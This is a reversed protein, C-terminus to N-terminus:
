KLLLDVEIPRGNYKKMIDLLKKFTDLSKTSPKIINKIFGRWTNAVGHTFRIKNSWVPATRLLGDDSLKSIEIRLVWGGSIWGNDNETYILLCIHDANYGLEYLVNQVTLEISRGNKLGLGGKYNKADGFSKLFEKTEQEIEKAWKSGNSMTTEIDDLLSEKLTKM